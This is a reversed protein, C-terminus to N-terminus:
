TEHARLHTYSVTTIDAVLSIREPRPSGSDIVIQFPVTKTTPPYCLRENCVQFFFDITLDHIGPELNLKLKVPVFFIAGDTHYYSNTEFGNDWKYKPEPEKAMGLMAVAEGSINIATPIPGDSTKYISYIFWEPDM